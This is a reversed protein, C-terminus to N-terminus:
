PLDITTPIACPIAVIGPMELDPVVMVAPTIVPNDLSSAVSNENRSDIGIIIAEATQSNTNPPVSVILRPMTATPIIAANMEPMIAIFNMNFSTFFALKIGNIAYKDSREIIKLM